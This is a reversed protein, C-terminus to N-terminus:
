GLCRGFTAGSCLDGDNNFLNYDNPARTWGFAQELPTVFISWAYLIGLFMTMIFGKILFNWRKGYKENKEAKTM